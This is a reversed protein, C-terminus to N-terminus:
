EVEKNEEPNNDDANSHRINHQLNPQVLNLIEQSARVENSILAGPSALQKFLQKRTIGSSHAAHQADHEVKAVNELVELIVHESPPDPRNKLNALTVSLSYLSDDLNAYFKNCRRRDKKYEEGAEYSLPDVSLQSDASVKADNIAGETALATVNLLLM